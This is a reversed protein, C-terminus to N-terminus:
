GALKHHRPFGDDGRWIAWGALAGTVLGVILPMWLFRPQLTTAISLQYVGWPILGLIAGCISYVKASARSTLRLGLFFLVGIATTFLYLLPAFRLPITGPQLAESVVSLTLYPLGMGICLIAIFRLPVMRYVM